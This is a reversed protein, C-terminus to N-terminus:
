FLVVCSQPSQSEPNSVRSRHNQRYNDAFLHTSATTTPLELYAVRMTASGSLEKTIYELGGPRCSDPPLRPAIWLFRSPTGTQFPSGEVRSSNVSAHRLYSCVTTFSFLYRQPGLIALSSRPGALRTRSPFCASQSDKSPPTLFSISVSRWPLPWGITGSIDSSRMFYKLPVLRTLPSLM